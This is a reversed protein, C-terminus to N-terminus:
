PSGGSGDFVADLWAAMRVGAQSLRREVVPLERFQYDWGLDHRDPYITDRIAASEGIWVLPDPDSWAQLEADDVHRLLRAAYESFSLQQRDIMQSDWVRHLNSSEGFFTVAFDNGGRDTGNGVHLPQHLDGILHVAFRLALQRDARSAQPDRLVDRFHALATFADGQAPAGVDAYTRGPPVTVYHWPNATKQWFPEPSSRMEDPWTSAEALTESGLIAHIAGSAQPSLWHEALAATIRHGTPGWAGALSPLCLTVILLLRTTAPRLRSM